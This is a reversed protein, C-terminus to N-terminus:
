KSNKNPAGTWGVVNIPKKAIKAYVKRRIFNSGTLGGAGYAAGGSMIAVADGGNIRDAVSAAIAAGGALGILGGTTVSAKYTTVDVNKGGVLGGTVKNMFGKRYGGQANKNGFPAGKKGVM